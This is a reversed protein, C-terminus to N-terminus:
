HARHCSCRCVNIMMMLLLRYEMWKFLWLYWRRCHRFTNKVRCVKRTVNMVLLVAVFLCGAIDAADVVEVVDMHDISSFRMEKATIIGQREGLSISLCFTLIHLWM